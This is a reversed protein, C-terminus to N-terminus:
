VEFQHKYGFRACVCGTDLNRRNDTKVCPMPNLEAPSPPTLNVASVRLVRLFARLARQSNEPPTEHNVPLLEGTSFPLTRVSALQPILPKTEKAYLPESPRPCTSGPRNADLQAQAPM